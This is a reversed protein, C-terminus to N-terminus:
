FFVYVVLKRRATVGAVIVFRELRFVDVIKARNAFIIMLSKYVDAFIVVAKRRKDFTRLVFANVYGYGVDSIKGVFPIVM